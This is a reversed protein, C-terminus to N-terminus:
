GQRELGSFSDAVSNIGKFLCRPRRAHLFQFRGFVKVANPHSIISDDISNLVFQQEDRYHICAMSSVYVPSERLVSSRGWCPTIRHAPRVADSSFLGRAIRNGNIM